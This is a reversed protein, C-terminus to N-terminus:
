IWTELEAALNPYAYADVAQQNKERLMEEGNRWRLILARVYQYLAEEDAAGAAEECCFGMGTEELVQKVGSNPLDGSMCCIIPKDMMMYEFLKGTLIGRQTKMHASALLLLDASQVASLAPSLDKELAKIQAGVHLVEFEHEPHLQQLYLVTHLTVSYKGKPSGNLVLIRM